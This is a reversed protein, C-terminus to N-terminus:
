STAAKPHYKVVLTETLRALGDTWLDRALRAAAVPAVGGDVLVGMLRLVAVEAETIQRPRGSGPNPDGAVKVYGCSVWYDYQRYTVGAAVVAVNVRVTRTHHIPNTCRMEIGGDTAWGRCIVEGVMGDEDCLSLTQVMAGGAIPGM